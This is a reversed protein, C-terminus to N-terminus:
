GLRREMVALFGAATATATADLVVREHQRLECLTAHPATLGREVTFCHVALEHAPEEPAPLRPVLCVLHAEGAARPPSMMVVVVPCGRLTTTTALPCPAFDETSSSADSAVQQWVGHLLRCREPSAMAALYRFPYRARATRQLEAHAAHLPRASTGTRPAQAPTIRCFM